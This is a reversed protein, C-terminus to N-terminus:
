KRKEIRTVRKKLLDNEKKIEILYLTLEEVKEMMRKQMDGLLLGDKEVEAASPINPLHKHQNIYDEIEYLTPKKYSAAFVYDPWSATLQVKAETCIVKGNVSLQYGTAPSGSGIMVNGGVHFKATPTSVGVGVNGPYFFFSGSPPNLLINKSASGGLFINGYRSEIQLSTDSAVSINGFFSNGSNYFGLPNDSGSLTLRYFDDTSGIGVNGNKANFNMGWGAGGSGGGYFGLRISDRMGFFAREAGASGTTRYDDFWIGPTTFINNPIGGRLRMRNQVDLLYEPTTSPGIGVNGNAAITMKFANNTAFYIPNNEYNWMYSGGSQMGVLLGRNSADGTINNTLNLYSFTSTPAHVHLAWKPLTTGIGVNPQALLIASFFVSAALLLQKKM